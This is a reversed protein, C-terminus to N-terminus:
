LNDHIKRAIVYLVAETKVASVIERANGPAKLAGINDCQLLHGAAERAVTKGVHRGVKCGAKGVIEPHIPWGAVDM